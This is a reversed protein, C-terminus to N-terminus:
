ALPTHILIRLEARRTTEPDNPCVHQESNSQRYEREFPLSQTERLSFSSPKQPFCQVGHL